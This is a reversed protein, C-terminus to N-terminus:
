WGITCAAVPRITPKSASHRQGSAPPPRTSGGSNTGIASSVPRITGSPRQTSSRTGCSAAQRSSGRPAPPDDADVDGVALEGLRAERAVERLHELARPQVRPRQPQLHALVVEAALRLRGAPHEGLHELLVAHAPLDVVEPRARGRQPQQVAEGIIFQDLRKAFAKGASDLNAAMAVSYPIHFDGAAAAAAAPTTVPPNDAGDDEKEPSAGNTTTTSEPLKLIQRDQFQQGAVEDGRESESHGARVFFIPRPQIHISM